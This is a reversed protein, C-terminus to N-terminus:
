IDMIERATKLPDHRLITRRESPYEELLEARVIKAKIGSSTLDDEVFKQKEGLYKREARKSPRKTNIIIHTLPIDLYAEIERVFDSAKFDYNGQKTVLNCVCIRKKPKKMAEKMGEVLLTPVISGYLDGSCIVVKDAQRLAEAAEKYIHPTPKAFIKEIPSDSEQQTVQAQRKLLRGNKLRAYIDFRDVSVPLVRGGIGLLKGASRIADAARGKYKKELASIILNGLSPSSSKGNEFRFEFIYRLDGARKDDALAILCQRLDGPPLVGFEDRLEGSHGGSDCVNVVATIDCDYYKLGRLIQYHGTGGGITVIRPM